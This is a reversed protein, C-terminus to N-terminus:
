RAHRLKGAPFGVSGAIAPLPTLRRAWYCHEERGAMPRM